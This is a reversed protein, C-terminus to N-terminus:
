RGAILNWAKKINDLLPNMIGNPAFRLILMIIIAFLLLPSGGLFQHLFVNTFVAPIQTLSLIIEDYIVWIFAGVMAGSITGLGGLMVMIIPYFSLTFDFDSSFAGGNAQAYLGGAIGAFFGSIMLAIIKYKLVNIGSAKAGTEDDRISKLITGMKSKGIAIMVVLSVLMLAMIIFYDIVYNQSIMSVRIGWLGGSIKTMQPLAWLLDFVLGIGLTGLAFYPGSMRQLPIGLLFALLVVILAGLILAIWWPLSYTVILLSYAYAGVGLFAVHGFSGQGTFGALFDWSAAFITFIMILIIPGIISINHTLFPFIIFIAAILFRVGGNFSKMWNLAENLVPHERNTSLNLKIPM